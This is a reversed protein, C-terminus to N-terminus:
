LAQEENSTKTGGASSETSTYAPDDRVGHDGNMYANCCTECGMHACWRCKGDCECDPDPTYGAALADNAAAPLPKSM